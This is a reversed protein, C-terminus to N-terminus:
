KGADPLEATVDFEAAYYEATNGAERDVINVPKLLRYHGPHQVRGGLFFTQRVPEELTPMYGELTMYVSPRPVTYWEGGILEEIICDASNGCIPEIGTDKLLSLCVDAYGPAIPPPGVRLVSPYRISLTLEERPNVEFSSKQYNKPDAHKLVYFDSTYYQVGEQVYIRKIVRYHGDGHVEFTDGCDLGQFVTTGGSIDVSADDSIADYVTKWGDGENKQLAFSTDGGTLVGDQMSGGIQLFVARGPDIEDPFFLAYPNYQALVACASGQKLLPSDEYMESVAFEMTRLADGEKFWEAGPDFFDESVATVKLRTESLIQLEVYTDERTETGQTKMVRVRDGSVTYKGSIGFSMETSAGCRWNAGDLFHIYPQLRDDNLSEMIYFGQSFAAPAESGTEPEKETPDASSATTEPSIESSVPEEGKKRPDTLFCVTLVICALAAIIILWFAPKKYNLVNKIRGKVGVEGFALPCAAIRRRPFSCDLLAQSYAALSEKDMGRIVAEDCAAEIDRSLLIFALWCLPNFWYVSLLLFALPKWVHDRRKLHMEEHALVAALTEGEMASPIYIRPRFVGLIFPSDVEDCAYVRGGAPVAATVTRRMKLYSILAYLLMACAGALWIIAAAPIIVQLPNVSAVTQPDPAFSGIIPNVASNVAPIGSDIAPAPSLAIDAPVTDRSPILSFLSRISVPLVLRLGALGWFLCVIKRPAKRLLLRLFVAALILWGAAISMNLIKLFVTSM